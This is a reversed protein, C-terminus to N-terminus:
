SREKPKPGDPLLIKSNPIKESAIADFVIQVQPQFISKWKEPIQLGWKTLDTDFTSSLKLLNGPMRKQTLESEQFFRLMLPVTLTHKQNRYDIQMQTKLELSDSSGLQYSEPLSGTATIKMEPYEGVKLIQHLIIQDRIKSSSSLSRTDVTGEFKFSQGLSVEGQFVPIQVSVTELPAKSTAQLLNRLALDTLHFLRPSNQATLEFSFFLIFALLPLAKFM